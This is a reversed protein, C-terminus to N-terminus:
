VQDDVDLSDDGLMDNNNDSGLSYYNNEEDETGIAEMDDDLEAGPVDLENEEMGDIPDLIARQMNEDDGDDLDNNPDGLNAIDESTVDAENGPVLEIDPDDDEMDGTNVKDNSYGQVLPDLKATKHGVVNGLRDAPTLNEVDADIRTAPNTLNIVDESPQYPPYGPFQERPNAKNDNLQDDKSHENDRSM